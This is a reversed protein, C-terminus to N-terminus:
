HGSAKGNDLATILQALARWAAESHGRLAALDTPAHPSLDVDSRM